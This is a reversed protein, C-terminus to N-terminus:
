PQPEHSSPADGRRADEVFVQCSFATIAALFLLFEQTESLRVPPPGVLKAFKSWLILVLYAFGLAGSLLLWGKRRLM